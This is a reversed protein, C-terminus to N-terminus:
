KNSCNVKIFTDVSEDHTNEGRLIEQFNIMAQCYENDMGHLNKSIRHSHYGYFNLWYNAEVHYRDISQAKSLDDIIPNLEKTFKDGYLHIQSRKVYLDANGPDEKLYRDIISLAKQYGKLDILAIRLAYQIEFRSCNEYPNSNKKKSNEICINLAKEAYNLSKGSYLNNENESNNSGILNEYQESLMYFGLRSLNDEGNRTVWQELESLRSKSPLTRILLLLSNMSSKGVSEELAIVEKLDNRAQKMKNQGIRAMARLYLVTEYEWQPMEEKYKIAATYYKESSSLHDIDYYLNGLKILVDKSPNTEIVMELYRILNRVEHNATEQWVDWKRAEAVFIPMGVSIGSKQKTGVIESARVDQSAQGHIGFLQGQLNFTGGGSMGSTTRNTYNLGYGSNGYEISKSLLSGTSIVLRNQSSPYGSVLIQDGVRIKNAESKKLISNNGALPYINKSQFYIFAMDSEGTREVDSGKAYHSKGDHTIIEIEEEEGISKVNHWATMIAYAGKSRTKNFIVGSGETNSRIKVTMEEIIKKVEKSLKSKDKGLLTDYLVNVEASLALQQIEFLPISLLLSAVCIARIIMAGKFRQNYELTDENIRLFYFKWAM